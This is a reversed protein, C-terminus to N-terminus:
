GTKSLEDYTESVELLALLVENLLKNRQAESNPERIVHELVLRARRVAARGKAIEQKWIYGGPKRRSSSM